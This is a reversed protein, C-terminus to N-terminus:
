SIHTVRKRTRIIDRLTRRTLCYSMLPYRYKILLWLLLLLKMWPRRDARQWRRLLHGAGQVNWVARRLRKPQLRAYIVLKVLILDVLQILVRSRSRGQHSHRGRTMWPRWPRWLLLLLTLILLNQLTLM